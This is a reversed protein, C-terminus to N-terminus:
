KKKDVVVGGYRELVGYEPFERSELGVAGSFVDETVCGYEWGFSGVVYAIEQDDNVERIGRRFGDRERIGM